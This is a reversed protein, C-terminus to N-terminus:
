IVGSSLAKSSLARKQEHDRMPRPFVATNFDGIDPVRVELSGSSAAPAAAVPAAPAAPASVVAPESVPAAAAVPSQAHAQNPVSSEGAVELM